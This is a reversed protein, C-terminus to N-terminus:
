FTFKYVSANSASATLLMATSLSAIMTTLTKHMMCRRGQGGTMNEHQGADPSRLGTM